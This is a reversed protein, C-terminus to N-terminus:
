SGQGSRKNRDKIIYLHHSRLIYKSPKKLRWDFYARWVWHLVSHKDTFYSFWTISPFCFVEGTLSLSSAENIMSNKFSQYEYLCRPKVLWLFISGNFYKNLSIRFHLQKYSALFYMYLVTFYFVYIVGNEFVEFSFLNPFTFHTNGCIM